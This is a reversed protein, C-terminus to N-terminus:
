RGYIDNCIDKFVDNSIVLQGDLAIITCDETDHKIVLNDLHVDTKYGTKAEIFKKLLSAVIKRGLATKIQLMDTM